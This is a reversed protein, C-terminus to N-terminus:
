SKSRVAFWDDASLPGVGVLVIRASELLMAFDTRAEHAMFLITIPTAAIAVM